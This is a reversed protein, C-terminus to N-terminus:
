DERKLGELCIWIYGHISERIIIVIIISHFSSPVLRFVFVQM